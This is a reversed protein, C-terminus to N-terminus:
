LVLGCGQRRRISFAETMNRKLNVVYRSHELVDPSVTSTRNALDYRVFSFFVTAEQENICCIRFSVDDLKLPPSLGRPTM